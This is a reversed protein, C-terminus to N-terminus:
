AQNLEEKISSFSILWYHLVACNLEKKFFVNTIGMWSHMIFFLNNGKKLTFSL